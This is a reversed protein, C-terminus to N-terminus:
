ALQARKEVEVLVQNVRLLTQSQINKWEEVYRQAQANDDLTAANIRVNMGAAEIAARAMFAGSAADSLANINGNAAVYHILDLAELCLRATHLPVITAHQTAVQIQANRAAMEAPTEKPLQFANMVETFAASDEDISATLKDRLADARAAVEKMQAEVGAYKKKGISLRAVMGALAASLAGALAAVAGGGPTASGAAAVELFANPIISKPQDSLSERLKNELIQHSEFMDLQLYWQAADIL